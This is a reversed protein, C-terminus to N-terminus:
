DKFTKVVNSIEPAYNPLDWLKGITANWGNGAGKYLKEEGEIAKWLDEKYTAKYISNVVVFAGNSGIRKFATSFKLMDTGLGSMAENLSKAISAAVTVVAKVSATNNLPYVRGDFIATRVKYQKIAEAIDATGKAKADAVAANDIDNRAATTNVKPLTDIFSMLLGSNKRNVSRRYLLFGITGTLVVFSGILIAKKGKSTM